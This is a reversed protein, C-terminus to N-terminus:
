RHVDSALLAFACAPLDLGSQREQSTRPATGHKSRRQPAGPTVAVVALCEGPDAFGHKCGPEALEADVIKQFATARGGVALVVRGLSAFGNPRDELRQGQEHAVM